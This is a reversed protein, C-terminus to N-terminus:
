PTITWDGDGDTLYPTPQDDRFLAIGRVHSNFGGVFFRTRTPQRGTVDTYAFEVYFDGDRPNWGPDVIPDGWGVVFLAYATEQSAIALVNVRGSSRAGTDPKWIVPAPAAVIAAGPGVNRIPVAVLTRNQDERYAVRGGVSVADLGEGMPEFSIVVKGEDRTSGMPVDVLLPRITGEIERRTLMAVNRTTWAVWGTAVALVGTVIAGVAVWDLTDLRFAVATLTDM